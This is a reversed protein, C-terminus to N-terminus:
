EAKPDVVIESVHERKFKNFENMLRMETCKVKVTTQGDVLMNGFIFSRMPTDSAGHNKSGSPKGVLVKESEFKQVREKAEQSSGL